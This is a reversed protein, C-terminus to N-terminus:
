PEEILFTLGREFRLSASAFEIEYAYVGPEAHDPVEVITDVRWRGPRLEYVAETEHFIPEGRFRIRTSLGGSVVQTPAAPCLAYVMRHNFEGGARVRPPVLEDLEVIFFPLSREACGYERSM